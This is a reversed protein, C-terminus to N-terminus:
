KKCKSRYKSLNFGLQKELYDIKVKNIKIQNFYRKIKNFKKRSNNFKGDGRM